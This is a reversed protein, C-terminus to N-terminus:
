SPSRKMGIAGGRIVPLATHQFFFWSKEVTVLLKMSKRLFASQANRWIPFLYQVNRWGMRLNQFRFRPMTTWQRIQIAMGVVNGM